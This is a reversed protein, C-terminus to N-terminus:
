PKEAAHMTSTRNFLAYLGYRADRKFLVLGVALVIYFISYYFRFEPDTFLLQFNALTPKRARDSFAFIVLWALPLIILLALIGACLAMVGGSLDLRHRAGSLGSAALTQATM